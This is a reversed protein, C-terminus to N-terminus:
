LLKNLSCKCVTEYFGVWNRNNMDDNGQISEFVPSLNALPFLKPLDDDIDSESLCSFALTSHDGAPM